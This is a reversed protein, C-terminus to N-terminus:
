CLGGVRREFHFCGRSHDKHLPAYSYKRRNNIKWETKCPLSWAPGREIGRDWLSVSRMVHHLFRLVSQGGPMAAERDLHVALGVV